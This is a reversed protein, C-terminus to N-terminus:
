LSPPYGEKTGREEGKAPGKGKISNSMSPFSRKKKKEKKKREENTRNQNEKQRTRGPYPIAKVGRGGGKKGGGEKAAQAGHKEWNKKDIFFSHNFSRKKKKGGKGGRGGSGRKQSPRHTPTLISNTPVNTM